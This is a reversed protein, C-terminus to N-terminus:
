NKLKGSTSTCKNARGTASLPCDHLKRVGGSLPTDGADANLLLLSFPM